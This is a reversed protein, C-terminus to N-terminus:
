QKMANITNKIYSTLPDGGNAQDKIYNLTKICNNKVLLSYRYSLFDVTTANPFNHTYEVILKRTDDNKAQDSKYNEPCIFNLGLSPNQPENTIPVITPTSSTPPTISSYTSMPSGLSSLPTLSEPKVGLFLGFMIGLLGLSIGWIAKAKGKTKNKNIQVLAIIGLVVAIISIITFLIDWLFLGIISLWFSATALKNTNM